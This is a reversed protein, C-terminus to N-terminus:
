RAGVAAKVAALLPDGNLPLPNSGTGQTPDIPLDKGDVNGFLSKLQKAHSKLEDETVGQLASAFALAKDSPVRSELAVLLKNYELTRAELDEKAKRTEEAAASLKNEFEAQLAATANAVADNKEVRYKAAERNAERIKEQAWEPLSNV